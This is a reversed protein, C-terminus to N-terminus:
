ILVKGPYFYAINGTGLERAFIIERGTLRTFINNQIKIREDHPNEQAVESTCILRCDRCNYLNQYAEDAKQKVTTYYETILEGFYLGLAARLLVTVTGKGNSGHGLWFYGKEKENTKICLSSIM